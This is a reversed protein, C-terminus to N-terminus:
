GQSGQASSCWTPPGDSGFKASIFDYTSKLRLQALEKLEDPLGVPTWQGKNAVLQADVEVPPVELFRWISDMSEQTFLTEFFLYLISEQPVARELNAITDQYLSKRLQPNYRDELIERLKREAVQQLEDPSLAENRLSFKVDSWLRDVPDRMIFIFKTSPVLSYMEAFTAASLLSYGPSVDAILARDPNESRLYHLYASHDYYASGYMSKYSHYRANVRRVQPSFLGAIRALGALGAIEYQGLRRHIMHNRAYPARKWDWYQGEKLSPVGILEHRRFMEYLWTTGCKPAGIAFIITPSADSM